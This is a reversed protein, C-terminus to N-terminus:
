HPASRHTALQHPAIDYSAAHTGTVVAAYHSIVCRTAAPTCNRPFTTPAPCRLAPATAVSAVSPLHQHQAPHATAAALAPATSTSGTSSVASNSTSSSLASVAPAAAPTSISRFPTPTSTAPTAALLASALLATSPAVQPLTLHTPAVISTASNSSITGHQHRQRLSHRQRQQLHQTPAVPV